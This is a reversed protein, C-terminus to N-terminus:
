AHLPVFTLCERSTSYYKFIPLQSNSDSLKVLGVTASAILQCNLLHLFPNGFLNFHKQWINMYWPVGDNGYTTDPCIIEM